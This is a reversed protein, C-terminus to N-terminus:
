IPAQTEQDDEVSDAAVSGDDDVGYREAYGNKITRADADLEVRALKVVSDMDLYELVEVHDAFKQQAEIAKYDHVSDFSVKKIADQLDDLADYTANVKGDVDDIHVANINGIPLIHHRYKEFDIFVGNEGLTHKLTKLREKLPSAEGDFRRETLPVTLGKLIDEVYSVAQSTEYTSYLHPCGMQDDARACGPFGSECKAQEDAPLQCYVCPEKSHALAARLKTNESEVASLNARMSDREARVAQMAEVTQFIVGRSEEVIRDLREILEDMTLM